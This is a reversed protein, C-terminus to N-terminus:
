IRTMPVYEKAVVEDQFRDSLVFDIFAKVLGSAEGKTFMHLYRSLPYTKSVANEVSAAVGDYKLAKVSNDLYGLSIYGISFPTSSVTQRVIGNSNCEIAGAVPKEKGLAKEDFMERTGSAEDRVVVKVAQDPGGVEKWNTIKGTFIGKVQDKTLNDVPVEKHAIVVIVDLAIRHDVLGLSREEDKLERSSNGIDVVGEAVNSIGVSSGGGQVNVTVEPNEDMFMEAAEQAIPLVTTSGSLSLTGSLKPREEEGETEKGGGGCGTALVASILVLTLVVAASYLFKKGAM